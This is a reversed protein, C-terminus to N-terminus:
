VGEELGQLKKRARQEVFFGQLHSHGVAVLHATVTRLALEADERTLVYLWAEPQIPHGHSLRIGEFDEILTDARFLIARLDATFFGAVLFILAAGALTPVPFM